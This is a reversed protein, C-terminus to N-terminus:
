GGICSACNPYINSCTDCLITAGNIYYGISSDCSGCTTQTWCQVCGLLTCSLCNNTDPDIFMNLSTDCLVCTNTRADLYDPSVCIPTAAAVCNAGDYSYGRGCESCIIGEGSECTLCNAIINYCNDCILTSPNVFM